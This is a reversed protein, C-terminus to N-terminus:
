IFTKYLDEARAFMKQLGTKEEPSFGSLVYSSVEQIQPRGLGLRLRMFVDSSLTQKVSRLGNHGGMGGGKQLKIIGFDLEIDDHVVLIDETKVRFFSAAEQVSRGSLNMYTLPKLIIMGGTTRLFESHFKEQWGSNPLVGREKLYDCFLWAVNHRTNRYQLGPNGLFVTIKAM